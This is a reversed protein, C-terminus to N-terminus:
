LTQDTQQSFAPVQVCSASGSAASTRASARDTAWAELLPWVRGLMRRGKHEERTEIRVLHIVQANGLFHGPSSFLSTGLSSSCLPMLELTRTGGWQCELWCGGQQAAKSDRTASRLSSPFTPFPIPTTGSRISNVCCLVAYCLRDPCSDPWSM